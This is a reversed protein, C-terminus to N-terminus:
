HQLCCGNVPVDNVNPKYITAGDNVRSGLYLDSEAGAFNDVSVPIPGAAPSQALSTGTTALIV